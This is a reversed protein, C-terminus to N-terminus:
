STFGVEAADDPVILDIDAVDTVFEDFGKAQDYLGLRVMAAYALFGGMRIADDEPTGWKHRRAVEAYKVQDSYTLRLADHITGDSMEVTAFKKQM